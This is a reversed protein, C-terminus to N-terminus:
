ERQPPLSTLMLAIESRVSAFILDTRDHSTYKKNTTSFETAPLDASQIKSYRRCCRGKSFESLMPRNARIAAIHGIRM